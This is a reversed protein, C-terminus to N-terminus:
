PSGRSTQGLSRFGQTLRTRFPIVNASAFAPQITSPIQSPRGLLTSPTRLRDNSGLVIPPNALAAAKGSTEAIIRELLATPPEPRPSKLMEMWAAGRQADAFMTACSPCGAMHLDFTAQEADSLIGDLADSLM